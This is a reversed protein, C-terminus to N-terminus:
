SLPDNAWGRLALGASHSAACEASERLRSRRVGRAGPFAPGSVMSIRRSTQPFDLQRAIAGRDTMRGGRVVLAAVLTFGLGASVLQLLTKLSAARM